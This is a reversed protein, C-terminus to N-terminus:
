IIAAVLAAVLGLIAAAIGAILSLVLWYISRKEKPQRAVTKRMSLMIVTLSVVFVALGIVFAVM